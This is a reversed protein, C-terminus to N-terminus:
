RDVDGPAPDVVPSRGFTRAEFMVLPGHVDNWIMYRFDNDTSKQRFTHLGVLTQTDTFGADQAAKQYFADVQAPSAQVSYNVQWSTLGLLTQTKSQSIKAGPYLRAWSPMDGVSPAVPALNASPEATQKPASAHATDSHPAAIYAAVHAIILGAVLWALYRRHRLGWYLAVSALVTASVTWAALPLYGRFALACVAATAATFTALARLPREARRIMSYRGLEEFFVLPGFAIISGTLVDHPADLLHDPNVFVLYGAALLMMAVGSFLFQRCFFVLVALVGPNQENPIRLFILDLVGLLGGPRADSELAVSSSPRNDPKQGPLQANGSPPANLRGFTPSSM